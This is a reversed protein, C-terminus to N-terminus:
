SKGEKEVWNISDDADMDFSGPSWIRAQTGQV